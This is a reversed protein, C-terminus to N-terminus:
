ALAARCHDVSSIVRELVVEDAAEFADFLEVFVPVDGLQAEAVDRAFAPVDVLGREDPWGWHSDSQFDTNQLHLVGVYPALALLWDSLPTEGYLPRYLAHGVDLVYRVPVESRLGVDRALRESEEITSPIERPLPTPEVLLANLGAARAHDGLDVLGDVLEEYRRERVGARAAEPVTIAGVPGGMANCGLEAAVDIARRWWEVSAARADPDPHLLGNYTYKALGVQASHIRIGHADAAHKARAALRRHQPWWPDLLDFSFQVLDLGLRERVVRAWEQPQPWRKIAFGLNIGFDV